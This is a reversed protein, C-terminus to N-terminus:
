RTRAVTHRVFTLLADLDSIPRRFVVYDAPPKSVSTVLAIPVKAFVPDIALHQLLKWGDMIPMNLDVLALSPRVRAMLDLAEQGNVAVSVEIRAM